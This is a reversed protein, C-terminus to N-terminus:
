FIIFFENRSTPKLEKFVIMLIELYNPERILNLMKEKIQSIIKNVDEKKIKIREIYFEFLEKTLLSIKEYM